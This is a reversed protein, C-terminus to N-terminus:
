CYDTEDSSMETWLALTNLAYTIVCNQFFRVVHVNGTSLMVEMGDNEVVKLHRFISNGKHNPTMKNGGM